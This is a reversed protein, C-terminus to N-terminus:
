CSNRLPDTEYGLLSLVESYEINESDLQGVLKPDLWEGLTPNGQRADDVQKASRVERDDSSLHLRKVAIVAVAVIVM